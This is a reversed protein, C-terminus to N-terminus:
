TNRVLINETFFCLYFLILLTFQNWNKSVYATRLYFGFYYLIIITGVLGFACLYHFYQNHTNYSQVDFASTNFEEYCQSLRKEIDGAGHGILLEDKIISLSCKYIVMRINFSNFYLGEPYIKEITVFQPKRQKLPSLYVVTEVLFFLLIISTIIKRKDLPKLFIIIFSVLFLSIFVGRSGSIVIGLINIFYILFTLLKSEFKNFVLLVVGIALLM